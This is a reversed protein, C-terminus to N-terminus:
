LILQLTQGQFTKERINLTFIDTNRKRVTFLLTVAKKYRRINFRFLSSHKVWALKKNINQADEVFCKM